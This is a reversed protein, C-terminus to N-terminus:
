NQLHMQTSERLQDLQVEKDPQWCSLVTQTGTSTLHGSATLNTAYILSLFAATATMLTALQNHSSEVLGAQSCRTLNHRENSSKCASSPPTGMPTRM